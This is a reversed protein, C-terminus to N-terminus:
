PWLLVDSCCARPGWRDWLGSLLAPATFDSQSPRSGPTQLVLFALGRGESGVGDECGASSWTLVWNRMEGAQLHDQPLQILGPATLQSLALRGHLQVGEPVHRLELLDTEGGGAGERGSPPHGESQRTRM